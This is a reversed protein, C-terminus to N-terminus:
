TQFVQILVFVLDLMDIGADRAAVIHCADAAADVIEEIGISVREIDTHGADLFGEAVDDAVADGAEVVDKAAAAFDACDADVSVQDDPLM